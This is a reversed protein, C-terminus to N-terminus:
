DERKLFNELQLIIKQNISDFDFSMLATKCNELNERNEYLKLINQYVSVTNTDCLFGDIGNEIQNGAAAYTALIPIGLIKAEMISLSYGEFLSPQIFLDCNKIYPYPNNKMGLMFIHEEMKHTAIQKKIDKEIPGGGVIYWNIDTHGERVLKAIAEVAFNLGKVPSLRGCSVINFKNEPFLGDEIIAEKSKEIISNIDIVNNVVVIKNAYKKRFEKLKQAINDSVAIIKESKKYGYRDHYEKRMAGHHYVMLFKKANIAKVAIEAVRDSYIVATDFGEGKLQEKIYGSYLHNELAKFLINLIHWILRRFRTAGQPEEMIKYLKEFKYPKTFTVLSSRDAVILRCNETLREAMDLYNQTILCTVDYKNYDLKNILNVLATEIGGIWLAQAVFVIKKKNKM